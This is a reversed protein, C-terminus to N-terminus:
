MFLAKIIEEIYEPSIDGPCKSLSRNNKLRPRIDSLEKETFRIEPVVTLDAALARIEEETRCLEDYLLASKEPAWKSCHMLYAPLYVACANGHPIGFKESLYYSLTHCMATGTKEIALGAYVSALYLSEFDKDDLGDTGYASITEFEPILLKIARLAFTDSFDDALNNFWSEFSHCLADLATSKIVSASMHSLYKADGLALAPLLSYDSINKKRGDSGTIISYRTVESGTGATTGVVAIPYPSIKFKYSFIEEESLEPNASILAAAKAADLASGGGIGIFFDCDSAVASKAARCVTDFSPNQEVESFIEYSLRAAALAKTVDDLAGTIRAASPTTIIMAKKGLSCLAEANNKIADHEFIFKTPSYFSHTM